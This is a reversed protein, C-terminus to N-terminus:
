LARSRKYRASGRECHYAFYVTIEQFDSHGLSQRTRERLVSLCNSQDFLLNLNIIILLKKFFILRKEENINLSFNLVKLTEDEYLNAFEFARCVNEPGLDSWMYQSCRAVLKPLMYKKAAYYLELAQDFSRLDMRETYIYRYVIQSFDIHHKLLHLVQYLYNSSSIKSHLHSCTQFLLQNIRAMIAAALQKPWEAM